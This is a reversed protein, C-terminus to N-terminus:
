PCYRNSKGRFIQASQKAPSAQLVDQVIIKRERALKELTNGNLMPQSTRHNYQCLVIGFLKECLIIGSKDSSSCNRLNPVLYVHKIKDENEACSSYPVQDDNSKKHSHNEVRNESNFDNEKLINQDSFLIKPKFHKYGSGSVQVESKSSNPDITAIKSSSPQTNNEVHNPDRNNTGESSLPPPHERHHNPSGRSISGRQPYRSKIQNDEKVDVYFLDGQVHVFPEWNDKCKSFNCYILYWYYWHSLKVKRAIKDIFIM